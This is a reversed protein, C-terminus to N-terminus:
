LKESVKVDKKGIIFVTVYIIAAVTFILAILSAVQQAYVNIGFLKNGSKQIYTDLTFSAKTHGLIGSLTKADVGSIIAQTAFTHRLDHFRIDPLEAKQLIEKMKRYAKKPPIPIQPNNQETFVWESKAFKKR